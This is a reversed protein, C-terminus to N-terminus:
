QRENRHVAKWTLALTSDTLYTLYGVLGAQEHQTLRRILQMAYM